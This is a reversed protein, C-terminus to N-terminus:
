PPVPFPADLPWGPEEELHLHKRSSLMRGAAFVKGFLKEGRAWLSGTRGVRERMPGDARPGAWMGSEALPVGLVEVFWWAQQQGGFGGM